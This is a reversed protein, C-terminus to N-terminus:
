EAQRDNGVVEAGVRSLLRSVSQVDEASIELREGAKVATNIARALQNLNVGIKVLERYTEVNVPPVTPALRHGLALGRMYESPRLGAASAKRCVEALEVPSLRVPLIESRVEEAKLRPRAVEM